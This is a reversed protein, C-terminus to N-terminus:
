EWRVHRFRAGQCGWAYLAVTGKALTADTAELDKKGDLFVTIRSGKLVIRVEYWHNAEYGAKKWSLVRYTDRNKLALIHFERQQDMAWLYYRDPSQFRFAVGLGDNDPSSLEVFLTGDSFDEGLGYVRLTGPRESLPNQDAAVGKFHNSAELVVGRAVQWKSSPPTGGPSDYVSWAPGELLLARPDIAFSAEAM